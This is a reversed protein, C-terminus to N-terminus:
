PATGVPAAELDGTRRLKQWRLRIGFLASAVSQIVVLYMLQRYVFQQLVLSWLPALRERDLIFAYGAAVYQLALFGLWVYAIVPSPLFVISYVAAVDIVPALLPLLVQFALLYPLGRRGLKGSAGREIVARRHKWMSQMTGYCWRYRQRWLQGLSAPAETWARADPAYVVRWGARCVAMTLDTDEALTDNSVGGVQDMVERRFAGIAGPVTPMCQLLDFMRRDLNFGIVYEIHQWRGLLGRRNGVKTNGSVAGVRPDALPAVLARMADPEFVTDGDVMVLIDYRAAAIGTNLAAPKGGNAQRIVRVGPLNLAEAVAATNDTSGDDVVVVELVPYDSAMLSKVAAAIGLEENYAPVIVSVPPLYPPGDPDIDLTPQRAHRRALLLLLLTRLAALIALSLFAIRLFDVVINSLRVVGIVLTGRIQQSRSAAHWASPVKVAESVTDFTYGEAKLKVILRELAAVTEARDGGGDHLMVVAGRGEAPTGAAVIAEVGPKRWDETDLDTYVVRYGHMRALSLWDSGVVADATSSFPPRLLDTTRGTAAAIVLQTQDVELRLRWPPVNALNVHTFSHVGVEHGEDMMRRVLDPREAVKSGVVFFTAKVHQRALVDLIRASWETPGDDFTLAVHKAPVRLGPEVRSPDVVPGGEIIPDPVKTSVSRSEPAHGSEGLQGSTVGSIVLLALVLVLLLGFLVWHARPEPREIRSGM